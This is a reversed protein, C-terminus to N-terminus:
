VPKFFSLNEDHSILVVNFEEIGIRFRLSLTKREALASPMRLSDAFICSM